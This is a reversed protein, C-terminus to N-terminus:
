GTQGQTCIKGLATQRRTCRGAYASSQGDGQGSLILCRDFCRSAPPMWNPYLRKPLSPRRGMRNKIMGKMPDNEIDAGNLGNWQNYATDFDFLAFVPLGGMEAHIRNDTILQKMYTSSFAYFPIFPMEEDFLKYWAEKLIIPDTSSETFLVPKKEIQIANIISLIQEQESYKILDSSLKKIAVTKPLDYCNARDDKIDFFKHQIKEINFYLIYRDQSAFYGESRLPSETARSICKSLRDLFTRTVGEPKWYRDTEDNLEIDFRANDAYAYFPRELVLRVESAVNQIGRKRCVFQRGKNDAPQMLLAALLLEKYVPGIGIFKRSDKIDATKIRRRFTTEYKEVLDM